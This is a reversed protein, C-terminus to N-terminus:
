SVACQQRYLRMSAFNMSSQESQAPAQGPAVAHPPLQLQLADAPPVHSIYVYVRTQM